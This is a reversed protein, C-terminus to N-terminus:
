RQWTEVAGDVHQFQLSAVDGAVTFDRLVITGAYDPALIPPDQDFMLARGDAVDEPRTRSLRVRDAALPDRCVFRIGAPDPTIATIGSQQATTTVTAGFALCAAALISLSFRRM